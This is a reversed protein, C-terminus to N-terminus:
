FHLYHVVMWDGSMGRVRKAVMAVAVAVVIIVVSGDVIHRESLQM